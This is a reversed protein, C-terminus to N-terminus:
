NKGSQHIGPTVCGSLVLVCLFVICIKIEFKQQRKNRLYFM